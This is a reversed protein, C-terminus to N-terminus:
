VSVLGKHFTPFILEPVERCQANCITVLGLANRPSMRGGSDVKPGEKVAGSGYPGVM